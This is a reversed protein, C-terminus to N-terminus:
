VRMKNAIESVRDMASASFIVNLSEAYKKLVRFQEINFELFEKHEGYTAGYSHKSDYRRELANRTFKEKLCSKQFKVCDVGARSAELIM